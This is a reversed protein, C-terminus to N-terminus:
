AVIPGEFSVCAWFMVASGYAAAFKKWKKIHVMRPDLGGFVFYLDLHAYKPFHACVKTNNLWMISTTEMEM